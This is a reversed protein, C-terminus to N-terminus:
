FSKLLCVSCVPVIWNVRQGHHFKWMSEAQRNEKRLQMLFSHKKNEKQNEGKEAGDESAWYKSLRM